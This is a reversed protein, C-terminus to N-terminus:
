YRGLYYREYLDNVANTYTELNREGSLGGDAYYKTKFSFQDYRIVKKDRLFNEMTREYDDLQSDVIIEKRNRTMFFCGVCFYLGEKFEGRMFFPNGTPNVGLLHAESSALRDEMKQIEILLSSGPPYVFKSIDDDISLYMEGEEYYNTIFNRIGSIGKIGVVVSVNSFIEQYKGKEEEDAVFITIWEIPIGEKILLAYTKAHLTDVRNYSPIAIKM